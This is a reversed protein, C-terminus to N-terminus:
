SNKYYKSRNQCRTYKWSLWKSNSRCCLLNSNRLSLVLDSFLKGYLMQCQHLVIGGEFKLVHIDPLLIILSPSVKNNCIDIKVNKFSSSQKGLFYLVEESEQFVFKKETQQQVQDVNKGTWAPTSPVQSKNRDSRINTPAAWGGQVRSRRKRDTSM